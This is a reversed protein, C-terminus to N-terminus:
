SPAGSPMDHASRWPPLGCHYLWNKGVVYPSGMCTKQALCGHTVAAPTTLSWTQFATKAAAVAPNIDTTNGEPVRRMVEETTANIVDVMGSGNPHVWQGHM